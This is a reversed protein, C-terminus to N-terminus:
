RMLRIQTIRWQGDERVYGIFITSREPITTGHMRNIWAIETFARAPAGSAVRAMAPNASITERGEFIRRLAAAAQRAGLPGSTAGDIDISVGQQSIHRAITAFDGRAWASAIREAVANLDQAALTRPAAATVLLLCLVLRTMM